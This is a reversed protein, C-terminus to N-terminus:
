QVRGDRVLDSVVRLLTHRWIHAMCVGAHGAAQSEWAGRGGVELVPCAQVCAPHVEKLRRQAWLLSPRPELAQM